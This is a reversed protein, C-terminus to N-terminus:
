ARISRHSMYNTSATTSSQTLDSFMPRCVYIVINSKLLANSETGCRRRRQFSCEYPMLPLVRCHIEAAKVLLFCRTASFPEYEGQSGTVVEAQAQYDDLFSREGEIYKTQLVSRLSCQMHIASVFNEFTVIKLQM